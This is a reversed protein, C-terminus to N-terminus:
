RDRRQDARGGGLEHLRVAGRELDLARPRLNSVGDDICGGWWHEGPQIAITTETSNTGSMM